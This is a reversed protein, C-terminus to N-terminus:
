GCSRRKEPTYLYHRTTYRSNHLVKQYGVGGEKNILLPAMLNTTMELPNSSMTVISFIEINGNESLEPDLESRCISLRYNPFFLSPKTLIFSPGNESDLLFFLPNGPVDKLQYHFVDPFGPISELMRVDITSM